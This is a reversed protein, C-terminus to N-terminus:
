KQKPLLVSLGAKHVPLSIRTGSHRSFTESRGILTVSCLVVNIATEQAQSKLRRLCCSCIRLGFSLFGSQLLLDTSGLPPEKGRRGAERATRLGQTVAVESLQTGPVDYGDGRHLGPDVGRQKEGLCLHLLM